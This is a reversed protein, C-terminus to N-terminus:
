GNLNLGQNKKLQKKVRQLIWPRMKKFHFKKISKHLTDNTAVLWQMSSRMDVELASEPGGWGDPEEPSKYLNHLCCRGSVQEEDGRM